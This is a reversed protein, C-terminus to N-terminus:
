LLDFPTTSLAKSDVMRGWFEVFQRSPATPRGGSLPYSLFHPRDSDPYVRSLYREACGALIIDPRMAAICEYHFYRTRVCIINRFFYSLPVLIQRFFSDGFILVTKDTVSRDNHVLDIIGDNGGAMGNTAQIGRNAGKITQIREHIPPTFKGGLDGVFDPDDVLHAMYHERFGGQDQLQLNLRQVIQETASIMGQASLHTDTAKYCNADLDLYLPPDPVHDPQRYDRKFVSAIDTRDLFDRYPVIKDPFITHLYGIGQSRCAEARRHHNRWFMTVSEESPRRMGTFLELVAHGGGTLVLGGNSAVIIGEPISGNGMAQHGQM